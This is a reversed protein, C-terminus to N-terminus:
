LTIIYTHLYQIEFSVDHALKIWAVYRHILFHNFIYSVNLWAHRQHLATYHCKKCPYYMYLFFILFIHFNAFGDHWLKFCTKRDTTRNGLFIRRINVYTYVHNYVTTRYYFTDYLIFTYYLIIRDGTMNHIM